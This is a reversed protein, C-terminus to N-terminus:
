VFSIINCKFDFLCSNFYINNQKKENKIIEMKKQNKFSIAIDPPRLASATYARTGITLTATESPAGSQVQYNPFTLSVSASEGDEPFSYKEVITEGHPLTADIELPGIMIQNETKTKSVYNQSLSSTTSNSISLLQRVTIADQPDTGDQLNIAKGNAFDIIPSVPLLQEFVVSGSNWTGLPITMGSSHIQDYVVRLPSDISNAIVWLGRGSSFIFVNEENKYVPKGNNLTGTNTYLGSAQIYNISSVIYGTVINSSSYLNINPATLNGTLKGGFLKLYNSITNSNITALANTASIIQNELITDHTDVYLKTAANENSMPESLGWIQGDKLILDGSFYFNNSVITLENTSIYVVTEGNTMVSLVYDTAWNTIAADSNDVYIRPVAHWNQTPLDVLTLHGTTMTDGTKHLYNSNINLNITTTLSNTASNIKTDTYLKNAADFDNNPWSINIISNSNLNIHGTFHYVGSIIPMNEKLFYTNSGTNISLYETAANTIALYTVTASSKSLYTEAAINTRLLTGDAIINNKSSIAIGNTVRANITIDGSTGGGSLGNGVTISTITSNIQNDVYGKTASDATDIPTAVNKLNVSSCDIYADSSNGNISIPELKIVSKCGWENSAISVFHLLSDAITSGLQSNINKIRFISSGLFGSVAKNHLIENTASNFSLNGTMSDGSRLVYVGNAIGTVVEDVYFKNAADKPAVPNKVDHIIVDGDNAELTINGDFFTPNFSNGSKILISSANGMSSDAATINITQGHPPLIIKNPTHSGWPYYWGKLVLSENEAAVIYANSMTLNGKMTDGNKLVFTNTADQDPIAMIINNASNLDGEGGKYNSLSVLRPSNTGDDGKSFTPNVSSQLEGVANYWIGELQGETKELQLVKVNDVPVFNDSIDFLSDIYIDKFGTIPYNLM